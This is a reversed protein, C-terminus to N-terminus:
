IKNAKRSNMQAKFISFLRIDDDKIILSESIHKGGNPLRSYGYIGTDFTDIIPVSNSGLIILSCDEDNVKSFLEM